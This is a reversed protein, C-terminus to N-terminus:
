DLASMHWKCSAVFEAWVFDECGDACAAHALHISGVVRAKATIDGNFNRRFAETLAEFLLSACNSGQIVGVHAREM